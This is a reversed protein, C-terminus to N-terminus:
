KQIQRSHIRTNFKFNTSINLTFCACLVYKIAKGLCTSLKVNFFKQVQSRYVIILNKGIEVLSMGLFLSDM